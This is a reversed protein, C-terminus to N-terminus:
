AVAVDGDYRYTKNKSQYSKVISIFNRASIEWDFHSSWIYAQRALLNRYQDDILFDDMARALEDADRPMVLVGTSGDVVADKLGNVNSAIVPTGCANAEIVTIGWGEMMSPQLVVWSKGLIRAKETESVRGFFVVSREIDLKTVLNKLSLEEEGFGVIYLKAKPFKELVKAFAKISTDINKYAKLRGLYTFLPFPTKEIKNLYSSNVGSYVIHVDSPHTIKLKM